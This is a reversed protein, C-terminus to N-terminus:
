ELDNYYYYCYYYLTHRDGHPFICRVEPRHSGGVCLGVSPVPVTLHVAIHIAVCRDPLLHDKSSVVHCLVLLVCLLMLM